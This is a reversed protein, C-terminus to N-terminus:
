KVDFLYKVLAKWKENEIYEKIETESKNFRKALGNTYCLRDEAKPFLTAMKDKIGDILLGIRWPHQFIKRVHVPNITALLTFSHLNKLTIKALLLKPAHWALSAHSTGQIIKDFTYDIAEAEDKNCLPLPKQKISKTAAAAVAPGEEENSSPSARNLEDTSSSSLRSDEQLSPSPTRSQEPTPPTIPRPIEDGVPVFADMPPTSSNGPTATFRKRCTYYAGGALLGMVSLVFLATKKDTSGTKEDKPSSYFPDDFSIDTISIDSM